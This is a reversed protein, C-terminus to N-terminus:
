LRKGFSASAVLVEPARYLTYKLHYFPYRHLCFRQRLQFRYNYYHCESERMM